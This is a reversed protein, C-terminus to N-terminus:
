DAIPRAGTVFMVARGATMNAHVAEVLPPNAATDARWAVVFNAGSGGRTDSQPVFLELTGMPAISRPGDLFERVKRGDTDFYVASTIRITRAPDVNRISVLASLLTKAREGRSDAEGHWIHSYVPVYLQAGTSRAPAAQGCALEAALALAAVWARRGKMVVERGLGALIACSSGRGIDVPPSRSADRRWFRRLAM